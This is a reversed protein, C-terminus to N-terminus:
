SNYEYWFLRNYDVLFFLMPRGLTIAWGKVKGCTEVLTDVWGM